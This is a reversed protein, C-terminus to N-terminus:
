AVVRQAIDVKVQQKCECYATRLDPTKYCGRMDVDDDQGRCLPGTPRSEFLCCRRSAVLLKSAEVPNTELALM